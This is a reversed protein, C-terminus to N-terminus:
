SRLWALCRAWADAADDPRHAPRSPVHVFGHDAEPYVVVECDARNAWAARLLGVDDPPTWHDVGGIISLTPVTTNAWDLPESLGPSRWAEPTRVMGYFSVARSFGDVMAPLKLTFYGGMCFGIMVAPADPAVDGAGEARSLALAAAEALDDDDLDRVRAMRDDIQLGAREEGPIRFFPEPACVAWGHTALRTCLDDFDPRIGGVDPCVVLVGTAPGETPVAVIADIPVPGDLTVREAAAQRGGTVLAGV